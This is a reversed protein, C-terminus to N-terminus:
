WEAFDERRHKEEDSEDGCSMTKIEKSAQRRGGSCLSKTKMSQQIGLM